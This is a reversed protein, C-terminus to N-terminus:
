NYKLNAQLYHLYDNYSVFQRGRVSDSMNYKNFSSAIIRNNRVNTVKSDDYDAVYSGQICIPSSCLCKENEISIPLNLQEQIFVYAKGSDIGSTDRNLAGISITDRYISVSWGFNDGGSIDSSLLSAQQVWTTGSRVFVYAKGSDASYIDKFPSGVVITNDYIAVSSGFYDYASPDNPLLVAQQSWSTGSRVFVYAKGSDIGSADQANAGIIITNDYISVSYGFFDNASPDNPLLVAQQSWTTGSRVYVYAKGSDTGSADKSRAAIVVTNDYIAVSNGFEDNASPDSPVLGTGQQSWTTGSRVFVYAKGSNTGSADKFPSGVVITDEYISVSSGFNDGPAIDNPLLGAQQVWITGSRVYIYAKGSDTGSADRRPSGVVITDNYIAVSRGFQDGGLLDSPLLLTQQVWTTGSRVFVYAKGSNTGSADKFPSGVVITDGYISISGGFYDYASPDSPVLGAQEIWNYSM